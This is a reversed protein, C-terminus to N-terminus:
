VCKLVEKYDLYARIFDERRFGRRGGYRYMELIRLLNEFKCPELAKSIERPTLNRPNLGKSKLHDELDRFIQEVAKGYDDVIRVRVERGKGDRIREARIVYVGEKEFTFVNGNALRGDVLIRYPERCRVRVRVEEGVKWIPPLDEIEKELWIQVPERRMYYLLLPPILILPLIYVWCPGGVRVTTRLPLHYRDGPYYVNLVDAPKVKAVGNRLRYERGNVYVVGNVPNGLDDVLKVEVANDTKRASVKVRAVSRFIVLKGFGFARFEVPYDGIREPKLELVGIGKSDTLVRFEGSPTEVRVISNRIPEGNFLVTFLIRDKRGALLTTPSTIVDFDGAEVVKRYRAPSSTKSGRYVLEIVHKGKRLNIFVSFKGNSDTKVVEKVKGDVKVVVDANSIGTGNCDLLYGTFTLNTSVRSPISVRFSTNGIIRILPDSWSPKFRLSGVYHALLYFKGVTKPARVVAVFHGGSFKVVKLLKGGRYKERMIYIEVYGDVPHGSETKVTGEVVFEEGERVIKKCKTIRTVTKLRYVSPTPDFEVWGSKFKVEAWVHAQSAFVTQNFPVPRALYGVVLRAPIGISNCMIVFASAFEKCIGRREKFLFWYVPDVGSPPPPALPDYRYNEKLFREIKLVKEYDDKAGSTVKLALERIREFEYGNMTIKSFGTSDAWRARVRHATSVAIYPTSCSKVRFTGTSSNYGAEVSVYCTDKAVPIHGRFVVVPTVRYRTVYPSIVIGERDGYSVREEIWVGNVYRSCTFLRLHNTYANIGEVFFVPFQPPNSYKRLNCMGSCSYNFMRAGILNGNGGHKFPGVGIIGELGTRTFNLSTVFGILLPISALILILGLVRRIM